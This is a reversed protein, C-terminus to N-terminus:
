LSKSKMMQETDCKTKATQWQCDGRKKLWLKRYTMTHTYCLSSICIINVVSSNESTAKSLQASNCKFWCGTFGKWLSSCVSSDLWSNLECESDVKKPWQFKMIQETEYKKEATQTRWDGRKNLWFKRHTIVRTNSFWCICIINGVSPDESAAISLQYSHSKFRCGSFGHEFVSVSRAM